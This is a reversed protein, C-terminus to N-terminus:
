DPFVPKSIITVSSAPTISPCVSATQAMILSSLSHLTAAGALGLFIYHKWKCGACLIIRHWGAVYREISGVQMVTDTDGAALAEAAYEEVLAGLDEVGGEYASVVVGFTARSAAGLADVAYM